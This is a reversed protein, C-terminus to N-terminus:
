SEQIKEKFLQQRWSLSSEVCRNFSPYWNCLIRSYVEIVSDLDDEIKEDEKIFIFLAGLQKDINCSYPIAGCILHYNGKDTSVITKNINGSNFAKRITTQIDLVCSGFDTGEMLNLPLCSSHLEFDDRIIFVGNTYVLSTKEDIPYNSAQVLDTLYAGITIKDDNSGLIIKSQKSFSSFLTTLSHEISDKEFEFSCSNESLLLLSDSFTENITVQRAVSNQFNSIENQARELEIKSTINQFLTNPYKKNFEVQFVKILIYMFSCLLVLGLILYNFKDWNEYDSLNLSSAGIGILVVLIIEFRPGWSNLKDYIFEFLNKLNSVDEIVDTPKNQINM